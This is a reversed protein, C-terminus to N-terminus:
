DGTDTAPGVAHAADEVIGIGRDRLRDLASTDPSSGGYDVLIVARTRDTVAALVDDVDVLPSAASVIDAFVPIAGLLRVVNADAVFTLSPIIVEDGPGVGLAHLSLLLAATGNAVAVAGEGGSSEEFAQEFSRTRPGMSLWGEDLVANVEDRQKATIRVEALPLRWSM